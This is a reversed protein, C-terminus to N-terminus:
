RCMRKASLESADSWKQYMLARGKLLWSRAFAVVAITELVYTVNFRLWAPSESLGTLVGVGLLALSILIAWGSQRYKTNRAAKEPTLEGDRFHEQDIRTFIFFCFYALIAIFLGAAITHILAAGDALAFHQLTQTGDDPFEELFPLLTVTTGSQDFEATAFARVPVSNDQCGAEETPILIVVLLCLAALTSMATEKPTKGSYAWLAFVVGASGAIFLTGTLPGYYYHSITDFVCSASAGVALLLFPLLGAVLGVTKALTQRNVISHAEAASQTDMM